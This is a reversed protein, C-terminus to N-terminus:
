LDLHASRYWDVTARMREEFGEAPAPVGLARLRSVDAVFDHLGATEVTGRLAVERVRGRGVAAIVAEVMVRVPVGVGSGVNFTLGASAPARGLALLAHVADDAHLYDRLQRGGDYLRIDEGHLASDLVSALSGYGSHLLRQRPGYLTTLRAIAADLGYARRYAGVYKEGALKHTGFLTEPETPADERVPPGAEPAYVHHSSAFVLRADPAYLRVAELLHWTGLCTVDLDSPFDGASAGPGPPGALHFVAEIGEVARNVADRNRTDEVAVEVRDAFGRMNRPSGGFQPLLSDLVRVVAGREVLAAVLGSGLFGLGGTVLVRRERYEANPAPAASM